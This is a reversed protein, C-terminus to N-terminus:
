QDPTSAESRPPSAPASSNRSQWHPFLPLEQHRYRGVLAWWTWVGAFLMTWLVLYTKMGIAFGFDSSHDIGVLTTYLGLWCQLWVPRALEGSPILHRLRRPPSTAESSGPGAKSEGSLFRHGAKTARALGFVMGVALGLAWLNMLFSGDSALWIALTTLPLSVVALWAFQWFM